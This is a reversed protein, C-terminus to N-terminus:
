ARAAEVVEDLLGSRDALEFNEALYADIEARSRGGLAMDLAVLRADALAAEDVDSPPPPAAIPEPSAAEAAPAQDGSVESLAAGIAEARSRLEALLEAVAGDVAEIRARLGDLADAVEDRTREASVRTATERARKIIEAAASEAASVIGQIQASVGSAVPMEDAIARLHADVAKRDYGDPASPFDDRVIELAM